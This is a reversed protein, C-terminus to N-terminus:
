LKEIEQKVEQEEDILQQLRYLYVDGSEIVKFSRLNFLLERLSHYENEVAILACQKSAIHENPMEFGRFKRVLEEAKEQPTKM